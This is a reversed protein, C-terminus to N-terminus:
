RFNPNELLIASGLGGAACGAVIALRGNEKELRNAATLLLRGGTAGFPHGLSLSGGWLNLKDIPIEGAINDLKLRNKVFSTSAICKRNALIQSSFAEHLEWVGIDSIQLSNKNLLQPISLAPGLLMEDLPDGATYIYDRIIAKM